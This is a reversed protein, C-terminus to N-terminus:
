LDIKMYIGVTTVILWLIILVIGMWSVARILEHSLRDTNYWMGVHKSSLLLAVSTITYPKILMVKCDM